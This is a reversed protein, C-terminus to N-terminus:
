KNVEQMFLSMLKRPQSNKNILKLLHFTNTDMNINAVDVRYKSPIQYIGLKATNCDGLLLSHSHCYKENFNSVSTADSHWIRWACTEQQPVSSPSLQYM